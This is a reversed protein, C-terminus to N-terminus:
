LEVFHRFFKKRSKQAQKNRRLLTKLINYMMLLVNVKAFNKIGQWDCFKTAEVVNGKFNLTVRYSFCPKNLIYNCM